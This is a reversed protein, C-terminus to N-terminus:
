DEHTAYTDSTPVVVKDYKIERIEITGDKVMDDFAQRLLKTAESRSWHPGTLGDMNKALWYLNQSIFENRVRGKQTYIRARTACILIGNYFLGYHTFQSQVKIYDELKERPTM